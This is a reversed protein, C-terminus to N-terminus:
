KRRLPLMDIDSVFHIRGKEISKAFMCLVFFLTVTTRSGFPSFLWSWIMSPIMFAFYGFLEPIVAMRNKITSFMLWGIYLMCIFGLVGYSLWFSVVWSHSPLLGVFGKNRYYDVGEIEEQSGYKYVYERYYGKIDRAWPGHGSIPRDIAARLGAFFGSRGSMLLSLMNDGRRTQAMYKNYAGEGLYNQLACYKYFQGVLPVCIVLIVGIGLIRKKVSEMTKRSKGGLFLLIITILTLGLSSRSQASFFGYIMFWFAVGLSYWRPIKLYFMYVPATIWTGFLALWFLSYAVVDEVAVEGAELAGGRGIDFM